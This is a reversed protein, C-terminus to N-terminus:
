ARSSPYTSYILSTFAATPRSLLERLNQRTPCATHDQGPSAINLNHNELIGAMAVVM